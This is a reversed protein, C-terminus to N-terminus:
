EGSTLLMFYQQKPSYQPGWVAEETNRINSSVTRLPLQSPLQNYPTTARWRDVDDSLVPRTPVGGGVAPCRDEGEGVDRGALPSPFETLQLTGVWIANEFERHKGQKKGARGCM